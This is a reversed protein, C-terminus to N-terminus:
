DGGGRGGGGALVAGLRALEPVSVGFEMGKGLSREAEGRDGGSYYYLGRSGCAGAYLRLVQEELRGRRSFPRFRLEPFVTPVFGTDAVVRFALGEPIRRVGQTFEAEIEATVYVPRHAMSRVIMARIMGVYRAEIVRPDYPTGREFKELEVLFADVERRNEALLWPARHELERFYWSRRLLEKDVVVVDPRVGRVLQYYYSASVWFDWQYSVILARERVSAFMNMTYDEVLHNGQEGSTRHHLLLAPLVGLLVLAAAGAPRLRPVFRGLLFAAGAAAWLAVTLHALLFYSAIDHIDYNIAYLVCGVFFLVTTIGLKRHARLLAVAGAVALVIAVYGGEEPLARVFDGLQRMAAESSSFIWVRYQKGTFHWLFRELTVPNGWNLVAGEAARVPLYLYVSLGAAFPAAMLGLRRFSARTGGQTAFYLYLLGPALLITTMHNGFALGLVFAFLLWWRLVPGPSEERLPLAARLFIWILLSVLAVHLAYVEVIVATAWYTQSFALLLGGGAAAASLTWAQAVEARGGTGALGSGRIVRVASLVLFFVGAACLLASLINLRVIEEVPLPLMAFVRGLLTFLPYGTPHAIGLTVAVAALEGADIFGVSPALTLVYVLLALLAAALAARVPQAPLTMM